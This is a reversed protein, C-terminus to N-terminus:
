DGLIARLTALRAGADVAPSPPPAASQTRCVRAVAALWPSPRREIARGGGMVRTRAWSCHLNRGARTFAVHLLRREEARASDSRAHVIPVYGDEIGIVHVADWELGKARHFTALEVVQEQESEPAVSPGPIWPAPGAEAMRRHGGGGTAEPTATMRHPIGAGDLARAVVALQEHTRALVAQESWPVGRRHQDFIKQKVGQAEEEDTDFTVIEPRPGDDLASSGVAGPGLAAGAAAVVQPTSRHNLDLRVVKMFPYMEPLRVLLEPDAGNWGYIAQNPDGIACLDDNTGLVARILRFQAPNVDQFEDVSLHRYRWRTAEAFTAHLELLDSARVLVDDLDLTKRRVLAQQYDAFIRGTREVGEPVARGAVTAEEVYQEPTLCRAKAWSVETVVAATTSPDDVLEAIIRHRRDTVVPPPGGHDAAHRALLSLALQHITGTRVGPSPITGAPAPTSVPLGFSALRRRLEAAAKRTFTCVATHDAEASGASIRQAVRLTLVRTKGSGAGAVVCLPHGAWEVAARQSDTLGEMAAALRHTGSGHPSDALPPEM